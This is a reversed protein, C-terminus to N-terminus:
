NAISVSQVHRTGIPYIHGDYSAALFQSAEDNWLISSIGAQTPREFQIWNKRHIDFLALTGGYSGTLIMQQNTDVAMCKVSNPHPSLFSEVGKSDWIKLHRDRSVTAFTNPGISCCDNTIKEHSRPVKKSVSWNETLHWTIETSACVSFLLNNNFSLGKVANEYVKLHTVLTLPADDIPLSFILIEGTYTGVALHETANKEFVIGCNLPSYHQYLVSGTEADFLAGIQGGSFLRTKSATLFNCLSGMQRWVQVSKKENILICGADGVSLIQGKFQALDNIANGANVESLDWAQADGNFRAYSGGFTGAVIQGDDQIAAARAWIQHPIPTRYIERPEIPQSAPPPSIDWLSMTQDYSLCALQQTRHNLAMKKIGAVHAPTLTIHARSDHGSDTSAIVAIRGLDDGAFIVGDANVELCDTRIKLDACHVQTGTGLDWQRITGDVSSSVVRQSDPTWALSLVNGTHGLFSHVCHGQRDFVRVVRDLACTAIWQDNPSFMAMDVDDGHGALVAQLRMQPVSWIRATYDSSASVLWHGDHSFACQNVLHDHTGAAVAKKSQANWLLVRNDYGATAVWDKHTAIGAIPGTHKM